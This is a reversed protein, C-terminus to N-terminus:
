KQTMVIIGLVVAVAVALLAVAALVGYLGAATPNGAQRLDVARTAGLIGVAFIATVGIGGVISTWVVELLAAWDVVDDAIV